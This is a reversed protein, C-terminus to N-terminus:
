YWPFSVVAFSIFCSLRLLLSRRVILAHVIIFDKIIVYLFAGKIAVHAKIIYNSNNNAFM